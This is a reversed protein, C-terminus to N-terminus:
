RPLFQDNPMRLLALSAGAFGVAAVLLGIGQITHGLAGLFPHTFGGVALAVGYTRSVAGSKALAIGLLLLGIVIGVIFLLSGIDFQPLAWLAKDLDSMQQVDLNKTHTLYALVTDNPGAFGLAIGPVTLVVAIATLRPSTRRTVAAVAIVAPVLFAFWALSLWLTAQVATQQDTVSAVMERFTGDGPVDLLMYTLGMVIMPLPTVAALAIRYFSRDDRSSTSVAPAATTTSVM